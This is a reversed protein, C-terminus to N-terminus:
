SGYVRQEKAITNQVISKSGRNDMETSSNKKRSGHWSSFKKIM